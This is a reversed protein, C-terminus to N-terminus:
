PSGVLALKKARPWKKIQAERKLALSRNEHAERYLVRVPKAARTFRAGLKGSQHETFRREVDTTIGTYISENACLLLYVFYQKSM